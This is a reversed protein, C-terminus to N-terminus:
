QYVVSSAESGTLGSFTSPISSGDAVRTATFTTSTTSFINLSGSGTNNSEAAASVPQLQSLISAPVTFTKQDATTFCVFSAGAEGSASITVSEGGIEVLDGANGGTWNLTLGSGRTVTSPLGGTVTLPSLNLNVSVAKVDNGGAAALTYTGPVIIGTGFGSGPPIPAGEYGVSLSYAYASSEIYPTNTLNSGSPGTLTLKGADLNIGGAPILGIGGVAGTNIQTVQCTGILSSININAVSIPVSPLEFGTYVTWAGSSSDLKVNGVGPQNQAFQTLNFSGQTIVTGQDFSTLQATTFGSQVCSTSNADAAIAMFTTALSATGNVVLQVQVECGTPINPPLTFDIQDIGTLGPARGAYSPTISVGGVKVAVTVGHQTFDYGPSATNDTGGPVAGMGVVYMIETQGPKAPSITFGGITQTTFRNIDLQTASVYNQMVALGNGSSDQTVLDAKRAVITVGFAGSTIGNNNTVTLNYNGVALSSPAIAAIQNIGGMNYLNVIFANTGTGSGSAPKFTITVGGFTAPLPYSTQSFGAASMNTGKVVFISGQAISSTYSAADLVATVSPGPPGGTVITGAGTLSVTINSGSTSGSGALTPFSGTANVYAGTGGSVSASASGSGGLVSAPLNVTGTITDGSSTVTITFPGSFNGSTGSSVSATFNCNGIGSLTCPGALTSSLGFTLTANTVTLTTNITAAQAAAALVVCVLFSRM